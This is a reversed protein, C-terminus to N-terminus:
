FVLITSKTGQELLIDFQGPTLALALQTSGLFLNEARAYLFAVTNVVSCMDKSSGAM